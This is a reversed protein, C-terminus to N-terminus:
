SFDKLSGSGKWLTEEMGEFVLFHRSRVTQALVLSWDLLRPIVVAM